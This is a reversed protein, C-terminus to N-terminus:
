QVQSWANDDQPWVIFIEGGMDGSQPSHLNGIFSNLGGFSTALKCPM